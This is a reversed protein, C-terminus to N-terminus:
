DEIIPPKLNAVVDIESIFAFDERNYIVDIPKAVTDNLQDFVSEDEDTQDTLDLSFGFAPQEFALRVLDDKVPTRFIHWGLFHCM